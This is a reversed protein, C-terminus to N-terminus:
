ASWTSRARGRVRDRAAKSWDRWRANHERRGVRTALEPENALRWEWYDNLIQHLTQSSPGNFRPEPSQGSPGAQQLSVFAALIAAGAARRRPRRDGTLSSGTM